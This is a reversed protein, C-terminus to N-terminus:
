RALVRLLHAPSVIRLGSREAVTPNDLFHRDGSVFYDPQATVAAALIAADAPRLHDAWAGVEQPTPDRVVEPQAAVLLRELSSLAEPLKENLTRVIEALVQRSIVVTLRGQIFRDLIAGPPGDAAYLGSFIVNSDLFVRLRPAPPM